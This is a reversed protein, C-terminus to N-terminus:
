RLRGLYSTARRLELVRQEWTVGVVTLITGAFGILVWQPLESAYPAVERLVLLGGVLGGVALPASWRLQSGVLVLGLCAAGLLVARPGVPDALVWLLSPVTALTLGPLLVATSTGPQRRLRDLAVLVLVLASPLTYAEPAEVGLDALRVWTAAALLVGGPWALIRREQHVLSSLTVLAGAVTLDIALATPQDPAIDLSAVAAVLGFFAASAEVEVRPMAIALLGLVILVPVGRLDVAVNAVEAGSWVLGASAAPLLQGGLLNPLTERARLLLAAVAVAVACALLTLVASPLAASITVVVVVGAVVPRRLLVLALAAVALLGVIVALPVAYSAVTALAAVVLLSAAVFRDRPLPTAV